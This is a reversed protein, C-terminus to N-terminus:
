GKKAAAINKQLQANAQAMSKRMRRRLAKGGKQKNMFANIGLGVDEDENDPPDIQPDENGVFDVSEINEELFSLAENVTSLQERTLSSSPIKVLKKSELLLQVEEIIINDNSAYTPTSHVVEFGNSDLAIGYRRYIKVTPDLLQESIIQITYGGYTTNIANKKKQSNEVFKNLQGILGITPTQAASDGNLKILSAKLSEVLGPPANQCSELNIIIINLSQVVQNLYGSIESITNVLLSLFDILASIDLLIKDLFANIKAAAEAVTTTIGVITFQNPIPLKGLYFVIASFVKTWGAAINVYVQCTRITSLIMSCYKEISVCQQQINQLSPVLKTLSDGLVKNLQALQSQVLTNTLVAVEALAASALASQPNKINIAQIRVCTTRVNNLFILVKKLDTNSTILPIGGVSTGNKLDNLNVTNLNENSINSATAYISLFGIANDVFLKIIGLTPFATTVTPDAINAQSKPDNLYKLRIVVDGILYILDSMNVEQGNAATYNDIELQIEYAVKQILWGKQTIVSPFKQKDPPNNPDFKYGQINSLLNAEYALISCLDVSAILNIVGLIGIDKIREHIGATRLEGPSLTQTGNFVAEINSNITDITENASKIAGEFIGKAM